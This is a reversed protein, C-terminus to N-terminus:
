IKGDYEEVEIGIEWQNTYTHGPELLIMDKQESVEEIIGKRSPLSTWPELCVYPAKTYPMHWIGLFKMEPCIVRIKRGEGKSLSLSEFTRKVIIADNDFLSHTLGMKGNEQLKLVSSSGKVFCDETMDIQELETAGEFELFYDEFRGEQGFPVNFGPHGGIAFYMAKCDKNEIIYRIQLRNGELAFRIKLDFKVPYQRLTDENQEMEFVIETDTKKCVSMVTDKLFGHIDMAYRSGQYEYKGDTMRGIYPFLNPSRGSWYATDGQWLYETGECDKVSWLEAGVSNVSVRLKENQITYIIKKASPM